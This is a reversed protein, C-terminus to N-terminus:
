EKFNGFHWLIGSPDHLFFEKGWDKDVIKSLKVRKYTKTLNKEKILSYYNELNEVELFLMSNDVWDKVFAKQLYFGLKEDIKFYSLTDSLNTETFGLDKYFSKSEEHNKAGIFTRISKFM